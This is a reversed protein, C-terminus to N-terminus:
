PLSVISVVNGTPISAAVPVGSPYLKQSELRGILLSNGMKERIMFIEDPTAEGYIYCYRGTIQRKWERIKTFGNPLSLKNEPVSTIGPTSQVYNAVATRYVCFNIAVAQESYEQVPVRPLMSSALTAFLGLFIAVLALPYM